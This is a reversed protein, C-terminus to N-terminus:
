TEYTAVSTFQLTSSLVLVVIAMKNTKGWSPLEKNGVVSNSTVKVTFDYNNNGSVRNEGHRSHSDGPVFSLYDVSWFSKAFFITPNHKKQFLKEHSIIVWSLMLFGRFCQEATEDKYFCLVVWWVHLTQVRFKISYRPSFLSGSTFM